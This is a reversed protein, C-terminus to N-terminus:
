RPDAHRLVFLTLLCVGLGLWLAGRERRFRPSATVRHSRHTPTLLPM